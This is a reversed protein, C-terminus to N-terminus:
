ANPVPDNKLALIIKQVDAFREPLKKKLDNHLNNIFNQLEVKSLEDNPLADLLATKREPIRVITNDTEAIVQKSAKDMMSVPISAMSKAAKEMMALQQKLQVLDNEMGTITEADDKKKKAEAILKEQGTIQKKLDTVADKM